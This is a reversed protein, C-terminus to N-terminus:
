LSYYTKTKGGPRKVKWHVNIGSNLVRSARHEPLGSLKTLQEQNRGPKAHILVKLNEADQESQQVTSDSIVEFRGHGFDPRITITFEEIARQKFCELTLTPPNTKRDVSLNFAVDVGAYIDSSGRYSPRQKQNGGPKTNQKASHHLVIVTAGLTALRRLAAMVIAMEKASNEDADHFRVFSDFIILLHYKMAMEELRPDGITPPPDGVWNAWIRLRPGESINLTELRQTIIHLPNDRDLLLVATRKTTRGLFEGGQSVAAALAEVLFSKYSAPLGTILVLESEPILGDVLWQIKQKPLTTTLPIEFFDKIPTSIEIHPLRPCRQVPKVKKPHRYIRELRRARHGSVPRFEDATRKLWRHGGDSGVVRKFQRGRGDFISVSGDSRRELAIQDMEKEEGPNPLEPHGDGPSAVM